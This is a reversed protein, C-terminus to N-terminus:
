PCIPVSCISSLLTARKRLPYSSIFQIFLHAIKAEARSRNEYEREREAEQTVCLAFTPWLALFPIRLLHGSNFSFLYHMFDPLFMCPPLNVASCDLKGMAALILPSPSMFTRAIYANLVLAYMARVKLGRCGRM